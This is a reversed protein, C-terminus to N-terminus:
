GGVVKEKEFKLAQGCDPCYKHEYPSLGRKFCIPCRSVPLNSYNLLSNNVEKPMQKESAKIVIRLNEGYTGVTASEAIPKLYEIAKEIESM